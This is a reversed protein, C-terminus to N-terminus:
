LLQEPNLGQLENSVFRGNRRILVEDFWIEGGGVDETQRLVLDWHIQSHNGNETEEYCQGPTLHISGAIKEDFLIDKMPKTCYPNFGIAFEGIYRAGPDTDLIENLRASNSGTAEVIKGKEFRLRVDFHTDGRYISPTNFAIIGEISDRVPATFVEGDPINRHGSCGVAPIDRISFTLHTDGPGKIEVRDTRNMLEILPQMARDMRAYDLTCVHFFFNEFSETSQEALQAMSPTPWRLVVWKTKKVRIEQHVPKWVYSEYLKQKDQPVDALANVNNSGRIGIYCQAGGMAACELEAVRKWSEASGHLLLARRIDNSELKVLPIGGGESVIRILEQTFVHPIDAAEILVTEGPQMKCSYHVLLKALETMRPDLM